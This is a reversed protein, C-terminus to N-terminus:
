TPGYARRSWDSFAQALEAEGYTRLRAEYDGVFLRYLPLLGGQVCKLVAPDDLRPPEYRWEFGKLALEAVLGSETAAFHQVALDNRGIRGTRATFLFRVPFLIRKTLPKVGAAVISAPNRIQDTVEATAMSRLAQAAAAVVMERVTPVVAEARVDRGHLLRGSEILDLRDVPPFRGGAAIGKLTASSGWFVSLREALPLSSTKVRASLAAVRQEDESHLPDRLVLGVDVDSVHASFGGHALSGLAYVAILRDRLLDQAAALAYKLVDEGLEENISLPLPRM